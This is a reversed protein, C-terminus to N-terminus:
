MDLGCLAQLCHLVTGSADMLWEDALRSAKMGRVVRAHTTRTWPTCKLHTPRSTHSFPASLPAHRPAALRPSGSQRPSKWAPLLTPSPTQTPVICGWAHYPLPERMCCLRAACSAERAAKPCPHGSSTHALPIVLALIHTFTADGRWLGKCQLRVLNICVMCANAM